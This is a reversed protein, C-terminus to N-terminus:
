AQVAANHAKVKRVRRKAALAQVEAALAELMKAAGGRPAAKGAEWHQVTRVTVGLRKGCEKQTMRLAERLNCIENTKMASSYTRIEYRNRPRGALFRLRKKRRHSRDGMPRSDADRQREREIIEPPLASMNGAADDPHFLSQRHR